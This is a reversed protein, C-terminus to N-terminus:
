KKLSKRRNYERMYSEAREVRSMREAETEERTRSVSISYGDWELETISFSDGGVFALDKLTLSNSEIEVVEDFRITEFGRNITIPYAYQM